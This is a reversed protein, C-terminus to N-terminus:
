IFDPQVDDCGAATFDDAPAAAQLCAGARHIGPRVEDVSVHEVAVSVADVSAIGFVDEDREVIVLNWGTRRVYNM